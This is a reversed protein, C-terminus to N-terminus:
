KPNRTDRRLKYLVFTYDREKFSVVKETDFRKLIKKCFSQQLPDDVNCWFNYHFYVGGQYRGFLHKLHERTGTAISAQAANKGWLLFMNPNHTLVLSNPPLMQAMLEAYRHDARAGWAEQTEARIYPLFSFCWFFILLVLATSVWKLDYKEGAWRGLASAGFGALVALPIYSLLSFRVDAGYNYSGAYFILFIGWFALFWSLLITKQKWAFFKIVTKAEGGAQKIKMMPMGLGAFFLITLLLPFRSNKLYFLANVPFNQNLYKLSFKVGDPAGWGEGRMAYLHVLHPLALLFILLLFVHIREKLLEGPAMLLIVLAALLAVMGSEARFQFAFPILASALFLPRKGPHKAFLIVSVLALGAFLAASPEAATTNAWRLGEPIFSFLLAGFLGTSEDEFLLFGTFFVVLISLGWVLNNLLYAVRHSPGTVRFLVSVLYPWGSPDKNYEMQRCTYQGYLNEGDNCMGARKLEAINQGVNLYIDEDYFIRHTQPAVFMTILMGGVAILLVFIWTKKSINGCVTRFLRLNILFGIVMLFFNIEMFLPSVWQLQAKLQHNDFSLAWAVACAALILYMIGLIFMRGVRIHHM